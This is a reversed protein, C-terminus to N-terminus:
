KLYIGALKMDTDFSLTYTINVNEYQVEMIAVAYTVKRNEVAYYEEKVIQQMLGWDSNITNKADLIKKMTIEKALEENAYVTLLSSYDDTSVTGIVEQANKKVNEKDFLKSEELLTTKSSFIVSVAMIIGILVFISCLVVIWMKIRKKGQTM